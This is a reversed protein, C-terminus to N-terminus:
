ENVLYARRGFDALVLTHERLVRDLPDDIATARGAKVREESGTIRATNKRGEIKEGKPGIVGAGVDAISKKESLM